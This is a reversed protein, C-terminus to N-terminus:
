LYIKYCKVKITKLENLESVDILKNIVILYGTKVIFYKYLYFLIASFVTSGLNIIM